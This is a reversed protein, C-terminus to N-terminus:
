GLAELLARWAPTGWAGRARGLEELVGPLWEWAVSLLVSGLVRGAGVARADGSAAAASLERVAVLGM